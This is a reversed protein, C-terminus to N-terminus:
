IGKVHNCWNTYSELKELLNYFGPKSIGFFENDAATHITVTGYINDHSLYLINAFPYVYTRKLDHEVVVLYKARMVLFSIDGGDIM